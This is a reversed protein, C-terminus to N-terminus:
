YAFVCIANNEYDFDAHKQYTEVSAYNFQWSFYPKLWELTPAGTAKTKIAFDYHKYEQKFLDSIELLECKEDMTLKKGSLIKHIIPEWKRMLDAWIGMQALAVDLLLTNGNVFFFETDENSFDEGKNKYLADYISETNKYYLKGVCLVEKAKHRLYSTIEYQSYTDDEDDKKPTGILSKLRKAEEMIEPLDKKPIYGVYHRYGM